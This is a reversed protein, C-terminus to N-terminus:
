IVEVLSLIAQMASRGKVCAHQEFDFKLETLVSVLRQATIYEFRKGVASTISITCYSSCKHYDDRGVKPIVIRNEEKWQKIFIGSMWARNWLIM